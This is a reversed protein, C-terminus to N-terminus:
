GSIGRRSQFFRETAFFFVMSLIDVSFYTDSNKDSWNVPETAGSTKGGNHMGVKCPLPHKKEEKMEVSPM